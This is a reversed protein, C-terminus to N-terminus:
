VLLGLERCQKVIDQVALYGSHQYNSQFDFDFM